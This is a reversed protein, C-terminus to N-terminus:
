RRVTAASTIDGCEASTNLCPHRIPLKIAYPGICAGGLRVRGLDAVDPAPANLWTTSLYRTIM